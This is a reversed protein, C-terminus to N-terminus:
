DNTSADTNQSAAPMKFAADTSSTPAIDKWVCQPVVLKSLDTRRDPTQSNLVVEWVKGVSEVDLAFQDSNASVSGVYEMLQGKLWGALNLYDTSFMKLVVEDGDLESPAPEMGGVGRVCVRATAHGQVSVVCLWGGRELVSSKALATIAGDLTENRLVANAHAFEKAFFEITEAPLPKGGSMWMLVEADRMLVEKYTKPQRDYSLKGELGSDVSVTPASQRTDHKVNGGTVGARGYDGGGRGGDELDGDNADEAGSESDLEYVRRGEDADGRQGMDSQMGQRLMSALFEEAQLDRGMDRLDPRMERMAHVPIHMPM